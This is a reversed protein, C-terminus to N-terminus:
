PPVVLDTLLLASILVVELAMTLGLGIKVLYKDNTLIGPSMNSIERVLELM